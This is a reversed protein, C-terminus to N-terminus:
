QEVSENLEVENEQKEATGIQYQGIQEIKSSIKRFSTQAIEDYSKRMRSIQEDFECFRQMFRALDDTLKEILIVLERTKREYYFHRFAQLVIKVIAMLTFPAALVVKREAAYDLIDPCNAYIASYVSESPVFLICFDVTNEDPNVYDKKAIEQIRNKVDTEFDKLCRKREAEDEIDQAKLLNSLPFKVDMNIKHDEPLFFTFDPRNLSTELRKNKQYHTNEILGSVRLIDDAVKEGHQGRLNNTSLIKNLKDTSGTLRSTINLIESFKVARDQELTRIEQQYNKVQAQIESVLVQVSKENGRLAESIHKSKEEFSSNTLSLIAELSSQLAKATVTEVHKESARTISKRLWIGFGILVAAGVLIGLIFTTM